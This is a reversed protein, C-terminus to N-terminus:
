EEEKPAPELRHAEHRERELKTEAETLTRESKARGFAVRNAQATDERSRKERDKRARRLNIVEGM